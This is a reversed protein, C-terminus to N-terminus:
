EARLSAYDCFGHPADEDVAAHIGRNRASHRRINQQRSISISYREHIGPKAPIVFFLVEPRSQDRRKESREATSRRPSSGQQFAFGPM